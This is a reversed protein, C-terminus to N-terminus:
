NILQICLFYKQLKTAFDFSAICWIIYVLIYKVTEIPSDCLSLGLSNNIIHIFEDKSPWGMKGWRFRGISIGGFLYMENWLGVVMGGYGPVVGPSVHDWDNIVFKRLKLGGWYSDFWLLRSKGIVALLHKSMIFDYFKWRLEAQVGVSGGYHPLSFWYWSM